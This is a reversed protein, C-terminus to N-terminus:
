IIYGTKGEVDYQMLNVVDVQFPELAVNVDGLEVLKPTSCQYEKELRCSVEPCYPCFLDPSDSEWEWVIVDCTSSATAMSTM